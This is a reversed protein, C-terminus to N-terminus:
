PKQDKHHHGRHPHKEGHHPHGGQKHSHHGGHHHGHPKEQSGAYAALSGGLFVGVMILYFKAYSM